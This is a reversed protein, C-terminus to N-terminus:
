RTFSAPARSSVAASGPLGEAALRCQALADDRDAELRETAALTAELGAPALSALVHGQLLANGERVAGGSRHPQPHPNAAIRDAEYTAWDIFGTDHEAKGSCNPL